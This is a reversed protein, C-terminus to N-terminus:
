RCLGNHGSTMNYSTTWSLAPIDPPLSPVTGSRITQGMIQTRKKQFSKKKKCIRFGPHNKWCKFKHRLNLHCVPSHSLTGPKGPHNSYVHDWIQPIGSFVLIKGRFFLPTPLRDQVRKFHGGKLPCTPKGPAYRFNQSKQIPQSPGFSAPQAKGGADEVPSWQSFVHIHCTSMTMVRITLWLLAHTVKSFNEQNM